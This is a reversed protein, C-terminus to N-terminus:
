PEPYYSNEEVHAALSSTGRNARAIGDRSNLDPRTQNAVRHFMGSRVSADPFGAATNHSLLGEAVLTSTSTEIGVLRRMGLSEVSRVTLHNLGITTHGDIFNGAKNVLRIPQVQGLFRLQEYFGGAINFYQTGSVHLQLSAIEFGLEKLKHQVEDMVVGPRQCFGVTPGLWGEGDYVGALYGAERTHLTEWPTGLDWIRAGPRLSSTEVWGPHSQTAASRNRCLWLHQSSAVITRGDEMTILHSPLYVPQNATVTAVHFERYKRDSAVEEDFGILSDGEHVERLPRRLGLGFM